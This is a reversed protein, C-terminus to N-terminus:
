SNQREAVRERPQQARRNQRHRGDALRVRVQRVDLSLAPDLLHVAQETVAADHEVLHQRGPHSVDYAVMRADDHRQVPRLEVVVIM